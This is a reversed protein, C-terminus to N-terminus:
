KGDLLELVKKAANQEAKRRSTGIGTIEKELLEVNCAIYFKQRHPEGKVKIIKYEPLPLKKAQLLEQLDTKPDKNVLDVTIEAFRNKYWELIKGRTATLDLSLFFAGIVAELADALISNRQHGGSKREGIGLIIYDGLKLEKAVEALTEECVLNARLRTLSGEDVSPFQEYLAASIVFNLISDGLFELRENNLSGMSCHTLAIKLLSINAEPYDLNYALQKIKNRTLKSM